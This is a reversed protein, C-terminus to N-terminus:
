YYRKADKWRDHWNVISIITTAAAVFGHLCALALRLEPGSASWLWVLAKYWITAALAIYLLHMNLAGKLMKKLALVKEDPISFKIEM